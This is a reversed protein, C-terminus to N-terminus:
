VDLTMVMKHSLIPKEERPQYLVEFLCKERGMQLFDAETSFVPLTKSVEICPKTPWCCKIDCKSDPLEPRRRQLARFLSIM